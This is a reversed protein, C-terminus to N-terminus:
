YPQLETKFRDLINKSVVIFSCHKPFAAFHVLAGQHKYTPIKYSIVEEAMPAASKIMQRLQQLVTRVKEPQSLIYDDVTTETKNSSM